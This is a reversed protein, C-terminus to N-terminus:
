CARIAIRRAGKACHRCARARGASPMLGLRQEDSTDSRKSRISARRRGHPTCASDLGSSPASALSVLIVDVRASYAWGLRSAVVRALVSGIAVGLLGGIVSLTVAEALFQTLIHWPKAGVAMRVGIERTRETVSVLMINMIGIGGVVLSVVAIAALLATLAQTGQQQAAAIETLNRINFDDEDTPGPRHRERLIGAIEAQARATDEKSWIASVM